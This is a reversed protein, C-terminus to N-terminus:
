SPSKGNNIADQGKEERKRKVNRTRNGEKEKNKDHLDSAKRILKRPNLIM